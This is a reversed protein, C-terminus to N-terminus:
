GVLDMPPLEYRDRLEDELDTKFKSGDELIQRGNLTVGGLMQIGDYKSLNRGWQQQFLAEVYDKLWNDNFMDTYTVPDQRMQMDVMIYDGANLDAWDFDLYLRNQHENWKVRRNAQSNTVWDLTELYQSTLFYHLIHGHTMAYIDNLFIQYKINFINGPVISSAGIGTYVHNVGLMGPPTSVYNDLGYWATSGEQTFEQAATQIAETVEIRMFTKYSGNYHYEQYYDIAEEVLDDLQETAVNIDITPYGLRRLAYDRIETKTAPRTASM